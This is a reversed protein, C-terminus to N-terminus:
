PQYCARVLKGVPGAVAVQNRGGNKAQYLAHDARAMLQDLADGDAGLTAVGVSITVRVRGGRTTVPEAAVAERTREMAAIDAGDCDPRIIAFEEGGYRGLVDSNRITDQVRQAVARIVDDGVGHGYGDNINKFKDIDIM